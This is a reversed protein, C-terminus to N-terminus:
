IVTAAKLAEEVRDETTGAPFILVFGTTGNETLVGFRAPGEESGMDIALSAAITRGATEFEAFETPDDLLRTRSIDKVLLVDFDGDGLKARAGLCIDTIAVLSCGNATPTLTGERISLTSAGVKLQNEAVSVELPDESPPDVKGVLVAFPNVAERIAKAKEKEQKQEQAQQQDAKRQDQYADWGMLGFFGVAVVLILVGATILLTKLQSKPKTPEGKPAGSSSETPDALISDFSQKPKEDAEIPGFSSGIRLEADPGFVPSGDPAPIEETAPDIWAEPANSAELSQDEGSAEEPEAGSPDNEKTM